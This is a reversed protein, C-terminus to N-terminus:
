LPVCPLSALSLPLCCAVVQQHSSLVLPRRLVFALAVVAVPVIVIAITVNTVVIVVVVVDATVALM